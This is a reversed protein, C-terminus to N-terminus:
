KLDFRLVVRRNQARGQESDNSAVPELKGRGYYDILLHKYDPELGIYDAVAKARQTSLVINYEHSAIGDTHGFVVIQKINNLQSRYKDLYQRITQKAVDTLDYSKYDFLIDGISEEVFAPKQMTTSKFEASVDGVSVVSIMDTAFDQASLHRLQISDGSNIVGAASQWEGQNIRYEGNDIRISRQLGAFELKHAKTFQLTNIPVDVQPEFSLQLADYCDNQLDSYQGTKANYSAGAAGLRVLRLQKYDRKNGPYDHGLAFGVYWARAPFQNHVSSTWFEANQTHPFFTNDIAPYICQNNVISALEKINPLRWDKRQLYNEKSTTQATQLSEQWNHISAEGTCKGQESDWSMGYSCRAWMLGTRRDLVKDGQGCLKFRNEVAKDQAANQEAVFCKQVRDINKHNLEYTLKLLSKNDRKMNEFSFQSAAKQEETAPSDMDFPNDFTDASSSKSSDNTNEDNLWEDQAYLSISLGMCIFFVLYHKSIIKHM